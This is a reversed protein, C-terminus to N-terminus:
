DESRSETAHTRAEHLNRVYDDFKDLRATWLSRQEELWHEAPRFAAASLRCKRVRGQKRTAVLGAAELKRLHALFTPLAMDTGAALETVTAPGRALRAVIARRTPDSLAAFYLDLDPSYKAM